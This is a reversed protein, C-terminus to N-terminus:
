THRHTDIRASTTRHTGIRYNTMGGCGSMLCFADSSHLKLEVVIAVLCHFQVSSQSILRTDLQTTSTMVFESLCLHWRLCCLMMSQSHWVKSPAPKWLPSASCCSLIFSLCLRVFVVALLRRRITNCMLILSGNNVHTVSNGVYCANMMSRPVPRVVSM